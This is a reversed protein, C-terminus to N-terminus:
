GDDSDTSAAHHTPQPKEVKGKKKAKKGGKGVKPQTINPQSPINGGHTLSASVNSNPNMNIPPLISSGQEHYGPSTDQQVPKSISPLFDADDTRGDATNALSAVVLKFSDEPEGRASDKHSAYGSAVEGTNHTHSLAPLSPDKVIQPLKDPNEETRKSSRHGRATSHSSQEGHSSPPGQSSQAKKESDRFEKFYPHRLCQRTTVRDDPNYILMKKMLDLADSSAHPLLSDLGTGEVPPFTITVHQSFRRFKALLEQPPTGMIAHIKHIQDLENSGPFLPYLSTIEFFVCGMGWIDMKASYYGDTLLCEPARYWRTSIYETYPQKSYVGRCSGFDALKLHDDKVLINEPKIDRHFIGNQHMHDLAVILQYMYWKLKKESLYQRRGRITEYLNMDMLEFVLGLKCSSKDYIYEVLRVIHPHPSLRKLAQIERLNNVQEMSEFQNKMRKIAVM